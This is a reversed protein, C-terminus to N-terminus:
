VIMYKHGKEDLPYLTHFRIKDTDKPLPIPLPLTQTINFDDINDVVPRTTSMLATSV